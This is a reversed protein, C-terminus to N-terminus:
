MSKFVDCLTQKFIFLTQILAFGCRRQKTRRSESIAALSLAGSQLVLNLPLTRNSKELTRFTWVIYM